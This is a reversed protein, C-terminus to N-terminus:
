IRIPFSFILGIRITIFDFEFTFGVKSISIEIKLYLKQKYRKGKFKVDSLYSRRKVDKTEDKKIVCVDQMDFCNIMNITSVSHNEIKNEKEKFVDFEIIEGDFEM